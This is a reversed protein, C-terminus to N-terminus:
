EDGERIQSFIRRVESLFGAQSGRADFDVDMRVHFLKSALRIGLSGRSNEREQVRAGANGGRANTARILEELEPVSADIAGGKWAAKVEEAGLTEVTASLNQALGESDFPNPRPETIWFSRVAHARRLRDLFDQADKLPAVEVEAYAQMITSANSLTRALARAIVLPDPNLKRACAIAAVQLRVDLVVHTNPHDQVLTEVVDGSRDTQSLTTKSARWIRFHLADKEVPDVNSIKWHTGRWRVDPKELVANRLLGSKDHLKAIRGLLRERAPHLTVRHLYFEYAQEAV